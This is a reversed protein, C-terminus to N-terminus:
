FWILCVFFLYVMVNPKFFLFEPIEALTIVGIVWYKGLLSLFCIWNLIYFELSRM